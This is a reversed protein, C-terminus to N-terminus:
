NEEFAVLAFCVLQTLHRIHNRRLEDIASIIELPETSDFQPVNGFSPALMLFQRRIDELYFPIETVIRDYSKTGREILNEFQEDLESKPIGTKSEGFRTLLELVEARERATLTACFITLNWRGAM